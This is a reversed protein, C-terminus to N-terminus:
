QEGIYKVILGYVRVNTGLTDTPDTAYRTLYVGTYDGKALSVLVSSIDPLETMKGSVVAEARPDISGQHAHMTEGNASNAGEYGNYMNGTNDSDM